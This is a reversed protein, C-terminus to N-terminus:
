DEEDLALSCARCEGGGAYIPPHPCWGITPYWQSDDRIWLRRSNSTYRVFELTLNEPVEKVEITM